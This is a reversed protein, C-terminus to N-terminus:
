GKVSPEDDGRLSFDTFWKHKNWLKAELLSTHDEGAMDINMDADPMKRRIGFHKDMLAGIIQWIDRKGTHVHYWMGIQHNFGKWLKLMDQRVPTAVTVLVNIELGYKLAYAVVQGGHSHCIVNVPDQTRNHAYRALQRGWADWVLHRRGFGIGDLATSWFFPQARWPFHVGHDVANKVWDGRPDVWRENAKAAWTGAVLITPTLSM